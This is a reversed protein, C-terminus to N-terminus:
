YYWFQIQQETEYTGTSDEYRDQDADLFTFAITVDGLVGRLGDFAVRLAHALARAESASRGQCHFHVRAKCIEVDGPQAYEYSSESRRYVLLPRQPRQPATSPYIREGVLDTVASQTLLYPRLQPRLDNM